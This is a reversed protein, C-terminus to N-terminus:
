IYLRRGGDVNIVSGTTYSAELLLYAVTLSIDQAVGARKLATNEIIVNQKQLDKEDNNIPWLIAGPSVGNIRIDPAFRCALEKTAELLAMKSVTYHCHESLGKQAYIDIINVVSGKNKKLYPFCCLM